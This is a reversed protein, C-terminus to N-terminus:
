AHTIERPDEQTSSTEGVAAPAVSHGLLLRRATEPLPRAGREGRRVYVLTSEGTGICGGDQFLAQGITFSSRGLRLLGSSATVVDPYRGEALYQIVVEVVLFGCGPELAARVGISDVFRVRGDEYFRALAANNLHRLPDLDGFRPPIDFSWPYTAALLREASPRAV